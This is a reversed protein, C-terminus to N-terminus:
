RKMYEVTPSLRKAYRDMVAFIDKKVLLKSPSYDVPIDEDKDTFVGTTNRWVSTIVAVSDRTVRVNISILTANLKKNDPEKFETKVTQYDKDIKDVKYGMDLLTNVCQDFSVNKVIITNAKNPIAQSFLITPILLATLLIFKM